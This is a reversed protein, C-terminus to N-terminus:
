SARRVETAAHSRTQSSQSANVKRLPIAPRKLYHRVVYDFLEPQDAAVLGGQDTQPAPLGPEGPRPMRADHIRGELLNRARPRVRPRRRADVPTGLIRAHRRLAIGGAGALSRDLDGAQSGLSLRLRARGTYDTKYFDRVVAGDVRWVSVEGGPGDPDPLTIYQEVYVRTPVRKHPRGGRFEAGRLKARLYREVNEGTAYAQDESSGEHMARLRAVANVVFFLGEEEAIRDAIWIEDEPILRPFEHHVAFNGFEEDSQSQDRVGLSNVAYATYRGHTFLRSKRLPPPKM